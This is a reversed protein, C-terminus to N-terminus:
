TNETGARSRPDCLLDPLWDRWDGLGGGCCRLLLETSGYTLAGGACVWVLSLAIRMAGTKKRRIWFPAAWAGLPVIILCSILHANM